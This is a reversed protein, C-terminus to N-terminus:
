HGALRGFLNCPVSWKRTISRNVAGCDRRDRRYDMPTSSTDLSPSAVTRISDLNASNDALNFFWEDTATNAGSLAMAITGRVNSLKFENVVPAQRRSRWQRQRQDFTYGGGQIVFGPVSRHIFSGNYSGADVYSLFNAVNLPADAPSLQM